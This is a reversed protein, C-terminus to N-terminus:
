WYIRTTFEQPQMPSGYALPSLYIFSGISAIILFGIVGKQFAKPRMGSLVMALILLSIVLANLYHYLFAPRTVLAFPLLNAIYALVLFLTFQREEKQKPSGWLGWLFGFIVAISGSFWVVPNGFLFIKQEFRKNTSEPSGYPEKQFLEGLGLWSIAKPEHQNVSIDKNWYFIPKEGMPWQYWKSSYPHETTISKNREYMTKNAEWFMQWFNEPEMTGAYKNGELHAQFAPTHFADGPGSKPLFSFHLAFVAIYIAGVIGWFLVIRGFFILFPNTPARNIVGEHIAGGNKTNSSDPKTEKKPLPEDGFQEIKLQLRKWFSKVGASSFLEILLVIGALGIASLGTWKISFAMACSFATLTWYLWKKWVTQSQYFLLLFLLSVVTFFILTSDMLVYQSETLLSTEFTALIGGTFAILPSRTAFFLLLFLIPILLVGFFAPLFRVWFVDLDKHYATGISWQAGVEDSRPVEAFNGIRAGAWLMLKGLPPHIDFFYEGNEYNEVFRFFHYEDFVVERPSELAWFRTSIALLILVTLLGWFQLASIYASPLSFKPLSFM